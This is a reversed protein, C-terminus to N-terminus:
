AKITARRCSLSVFTFSSLFYYILTGSFASCAALFVQFRDEVRGPPVEPSHAALRLLARLPDLAAVRESHFYRGFVVSYRKGQYRFSAVSVADPLVRNLPDPYRFPYAAGVSFIGMGAAPLPVVPAFLRTFLHRPQADM